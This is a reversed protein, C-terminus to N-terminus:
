SIKVFDGENSESSRRAFPRIAAIPAPGPHPFAQDRSLTGIRSDENSKYNPKVFRELEHTSTVLCSAM